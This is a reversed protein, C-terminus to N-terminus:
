SDEVGRKFRGVYEQMRKANPNENPPYMVGKHCLKRYREVLAFAYAGHGHRSLTELVDPRLAAFREELELIDREVGLHEDSARASKKKQNSDAVRNTESRSYNMVEV